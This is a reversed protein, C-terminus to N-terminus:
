NCLEMSSAKADYANPGTNSPKALTAKRGSIKSVGYTEGDDMKFSIAM